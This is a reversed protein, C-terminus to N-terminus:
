CVGLMANGNCGLALAAIFHVAAASTPRSVPWAAAVCVGTSFTTPKSFSIFACTCFSAFASSSAYSLYLQQHVVFRPKFVSATSVASFRMTWSSAKRSSATPVSAWSLVSIEVRSSSMAASWSARRVAVASLSCSLSSNRAASASELSLTPAMLSATSMRALTCSSCFCLPWAATRSTLGMSICTRLARSPMWLLAPKWSTIRRSKHSTMLEIPSEAPM